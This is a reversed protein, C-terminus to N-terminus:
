NSEDRDLYRLHEELDEQDEIDNLLKIMDDEDNTLGYPANADEPEAIEHPHFTDWTDFDITDIEGDRYQIEIGDVRDCDIVMFSEQFNASDYWNGVTPVSHYINPM